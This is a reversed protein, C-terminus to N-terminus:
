IYFKKDKYGSEYVGYIQNLSKKLNSSNFFTTVDLFSSNFSIGNEYNKIIKNFIIKLMKYNKASTKLASIFDMNVSLKVDVDMLFYPLDKEIQGIYYDRLYSPYFLFVSIILLTSCLTTIVIYLIENFYIVSIMLSFIFVSLSLFSM